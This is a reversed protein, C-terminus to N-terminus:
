AAELDVSAEGIVVDVYTIFDPKSHVVEGRQDAGDPVFLFGHGYVARLEGVVALRKGRKIPYTVTVRRGVWDGVQQKVAAVSAPDVGAM